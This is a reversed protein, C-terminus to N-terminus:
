LHIEKDRSHYLDDGWKRGQGHRVAVYTELLYSEGVEGTIDWTKYPNWNERDKAYQLESTWLGYEEGAEKKPVTIPGEYSLDKLPITYQNNHDAKWIKFHYDARMGVNKTTRNEIRFNHQSIAIILSNAGIEFSWPSLTVNGAWKENDVEQAM